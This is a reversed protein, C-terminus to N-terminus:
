QALMESPDFHLVMERWVEYKDPPLPLPSCQRVARVAAEAAMRYNPDKLREPNQVQVKQVSGDRNLFVRIEVAVRAANPLETLPTWCPSIRNRVEDIAGLSMVSSGDGSPSAEAENGRAVTRRVFRRWPAALPLQRASFRFDLKRWRQYEHLPLRLRGCGELADKASQVLARSEPSALAEDPSQLETSEVDAFRGLKARIVFDPVNEHGEDSSPRWCELVQRSVTATGGFEATDEGDTVVVWPGPVDVTAVHLM